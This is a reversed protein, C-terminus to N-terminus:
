PRRGASGDLPGTPGNPAVSPDVCAGPPYPGADAPPPAPGAPSRRRGRASVILAVAAVIVGSAVLTRATVPESLILWGLLVAVVPNVYAYTGVLSLRAKTLLWVYASFAVLSGFVVLYALGLLSEGSVKSPHLHGLEGTAAGMVALLAGGALMEMAAGVLPRRPLPARKAYVSGAGWCGAGLAVVVAATPDIGGRGSNAVLLALGAFGLALGAVAMRPLREGSVVRDIAAMWLPVTAIILAAIGSPLRQEGWVVAGNGGALLACGVIAAARWQPLGLRDGRDGRRASWAFLIAGAVLFRVSAMLLPPITRISVKIAIYTSGWVVYVLGLALWVAAGAAAPVPAASRVPRARHSSPKPRPQTERAM